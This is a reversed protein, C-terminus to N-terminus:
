EWKIVVRHQENSHTSGMQNRAINPLDMSDLPFSKGYLVMNMDGVGGLVQPLKSGPLRNKVVPKLQIHDLRLYRALYPIAMGVGTISYVIM